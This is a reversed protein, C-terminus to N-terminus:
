NGYNIIASGCQKKYERRVVFDPQLLSTGNTCVLMGIKSTYKLWEFLAMSVIVIDLNLALHDPLTRKSVEEEPM